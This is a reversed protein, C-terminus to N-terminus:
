EAFSVVARAVGGTEENVSRYSLVTPAVPAVEVAPAGADQAWTASASVVTVATLLPALRGLRGLPHPRSAGSSWTTLHRRYM